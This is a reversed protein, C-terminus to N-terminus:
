RRLSHLLRRTTTSPTANVRALALECSQYARVVGQEDGRTEAIRMAIRWARERYPEARVVQATLRHAEDYRGASLALEAAECRGDNALEALERAREDAWTSHAGPLYEGRDYTALAELTAALREEGPHRAAEALQSEFRASETVVAVAGDIKVRGGDAIVAGEPLCHRLWQITTRLYSRASADARGDFLTDLLESREVEAPARSALLALLEYTKAIRPRAEEGNVLLVRQGFERLEVSARPLFPVTVQQALLARALAHWASDAGEVADLRRSVVSPVDALAQLLLHNSGQQEAADLALDAARDAADENGARWEAEALYAAATPLELTRHRAVMSEVAPRLRDLAASDESELLLALGFWVDRIERAFPFVEAAREMEPRTLAIQAAQTDRDLRLAAKAEALANLAQLGLSGSTLAIQRGSALARQADEKRGVDILVEPGIFIQLAPPMVGTARADEYLELARETHGSARLAGIRWPGMLAHMWRSAPAEALDRLRGLCYDTAYVILDITGGTLETAPAKRLSPESMDDSLAGLGYRVAEVIPGPEAAALVARVDEARGVHFYAWAMLAASHESQRAFEDRDGLAQLQDAIRVGRRIDDRAIAVMLEAATLTSPGAVALDALADLWREAIGIDLREIVPMIAREATRLADARAEARLFEETADEDQGAAALSRAHAVRLERLEREGRRQLRELLYERFRSHCRMVRGDHGWTVPLHAARLAMLQEGARDLGLAEARSATVEDLMSTTILFDCLQPELAGLIQASLYGNLPDAEGGVVATHDSSRWAEFLVGTVWGGTAEVAAVPDVESKGVSALAAGAESPTFALETEGIAAIGVTPLACLGTPMERRSVLVIRLSSPAYRILAEIVVWAPASDELRELDDLVLVVPEGDAAEALLGAAEAHPIGAALAETAVGAASASCRALAAELYTLLRGPAADTRDVSLWAVRLDLRAVAAAVATTKGAGATASVVVVRHAAILAALQDHLRPRDVFEDLLLPVGLKSQIVAPM